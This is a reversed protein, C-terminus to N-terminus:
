PVRVRFEYHGGRHHSYWTQSWCIFNERMAQMIEENGSWGGTSIDWSDYEQREHPDDTIRTPGQVQRDPWNYISRVYELWETYGDYGYRDHSRIAALEDDSPYRNM